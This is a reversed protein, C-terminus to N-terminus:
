YKRLYLIASELITIQNKACSIMINCNNCILGRVTGTEKCYDVCLRRVLKSSHIGCVKCCGNQSAFMENWEKITLGYKQFLNKAGQSNEDLHIM